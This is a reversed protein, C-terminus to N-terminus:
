HTTGIMISDLAKGLFVGLLDALPKIQANKGIMGFVKSISM